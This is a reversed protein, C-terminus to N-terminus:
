QQYGRDDRSIFKRLCTLLSISQTWPCKGQSTHKLSRNPKQDPSHGFYLVCYVNNSSVVDPPPFGDDSAPIYHVVQWSWVRHKHMKKRKDLHTLIDHFGQADSILVTPSRISMTNGEDLVELTTFIKELRMDELLEERLTSNEATHFFVL